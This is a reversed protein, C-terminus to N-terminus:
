KSWNPTERNKYEWRWGDKCLKDNIYYNRYAKVPDVDRYQEPMAQAFETLGLDPLDPIIISKLYEEVKHTKLYRHTYEKCLAKCLKITYEFNQKSKGVWLTCPHHAHTSKMPAPLKHLEMVTSLMQCLESPMKITHTNCHQKANLEVDKNLLFLNM